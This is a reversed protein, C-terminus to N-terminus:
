LRTGKIPGRQKLERKLREIAEPAFELPVIVVNRLGQMGKKRDYFTLTLDPKCVFSSQDGNIANVGSPLDISIKYGQLSNFLDVAETFPLAMEGKFGIGFLGDVILLHGTQRIKKITHADLSSSKMIEVHDNGALKAFTSATVGSFKRTDGYLFVFVFCHKSLLRALAFSDGANKGHGAFVIATKTKLDLHKNLYEFLSKGAREMLMSTSVSKEASWQELKRMDEVTIM